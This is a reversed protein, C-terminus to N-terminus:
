QKSDGVIDALGGLLAARTTESQAHHVMHQRHSRRLQDQESHLRDIRLNTVLQGGGLALGGIAVCISAILTITM